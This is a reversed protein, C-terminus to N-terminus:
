LFNAYGRATSRGKQPSIHDDALFGPHLLDMQYWPSPLSNSVLSNHHTYSVHANLNSDHYIYVDMFYVSTWRRTQGLLVCVIVGVRDDDRLVRYM